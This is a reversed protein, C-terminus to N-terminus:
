QFYELYRPRNWCVAVSAEAIARDTLRLTAVIALLHTSHVLAVSQREFVVELIDLM